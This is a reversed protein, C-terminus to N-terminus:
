AMLLQAIAETMACSYRCGSIMGMAAYASAEATTTARPLMEWSVDHSAGCHSPKDAIEDVALPVALIKVM